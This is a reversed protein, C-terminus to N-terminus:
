SFLTNKSPFPMLHYIVQFQRVYVFNAFRLQRHPVPGNNLLRYDSLQNLFKEGKISGSPENGHECPGAETRFSIFRTSVTVPDTLDIKINVEWIYEFIKWSTEEKLSEL